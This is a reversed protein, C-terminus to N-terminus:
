GAKQWVCLISRGIRYGLTLDMWKSLPILGRDWCLIQQRTPIAQRLLIKNLLSAALGASDLYRLTVIECGNPTLATLMRKDYRRRHGIARDFASFLFNFAPSLVIIKGGVTLREAAAELEARDNDIHELVDIYIFSDVAAQPPLEGVFGGRTHCCSPLEHSAIRSEIQARLRPDPELCLWDEQTGDCLIQTTGGLGAGVEVVRKGIHPRIFSAFYRKWNIADAFIALEKGVYCQENM